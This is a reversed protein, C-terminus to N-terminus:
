LFHVETAAGLLAIRTAVRTNPALPRLLRVSPLALLIPPAFRLGDCHVSGTLVIIAAAISYDAVRHYPSRICLGSPNRKAEGSGVSATRTQFAYELIGYILRINM